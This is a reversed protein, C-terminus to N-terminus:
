GVEDRSLRQSFERALDVWREESIGYFGVLLNAVSELDLDDSLLPRITRDVEWFAIAGRRHASKHLIQYYIDDRTPGAQVSPFNHAPRWSRWAHRFSLEVNLKESPLQTLGLTLCGVALGEGVAKQQQVKSLRSPV